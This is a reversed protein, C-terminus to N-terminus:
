ARAPKAVVPRGWQDRVIKGQAFEVAGWVGSQGTQAAWRRCADMLPCGFCVQRAYSFDVSPFPFWEEPDEGRCAAMRFDPDTSRVLLVDLSIQERVAIVTKAM